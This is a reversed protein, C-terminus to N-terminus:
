TLNKSDFFIGLVKGYTACIFAKENSPCNTALPVNLDSFVEILRESFKACWNNYVPAVLPIDDLTRHFYKEPIRLEANALVKISNAFIDFNPVSTKAGFIQRNELFYKNLWFFGQCRLDNIKAPIIKFADVFDFKSMIANKGCEYLSYSFKRASSMFVKEICFENMNDNLSAGKPASVDFVPRIKSGQDIASLPNVRFNKLSPTDFPGSVFKKDVWNAITETVKEGHVYCSKSNKVFCAPLPGKQALPAGEKFNEISKKCREYASSKLHGKSVNVLKEMSSVDVSCSPRVPLENRPFTAWVSRPPSKLYDELKMVPIRPALLWGIPFRPRNALLRGVNKWDTPLGLFSRDM